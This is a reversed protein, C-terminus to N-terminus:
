NKIHRFGADLLGAKIDSFLLKCKDLSNNEFELQRISYTAFALTIQVICIVTTLILIIQNKQMTGDDNFFDGYFIFFVLVAMAFASLILLTGDLIGHMSSPQGKNIIWLFLLVTSIILITSFALLKRKKAIM